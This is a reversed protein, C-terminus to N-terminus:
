TASQKMEEQGGETDPHTADCLLVVDHDSNRDGTLQGRIELVNGSAFPKSTMTGVYNRNPRLNTIVGSKDIKECIDFPLYRLGPRVFAEGVTFQHM